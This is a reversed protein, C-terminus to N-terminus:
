DIAQQSKMVTLHKTIDADSKGERQMRQKAM